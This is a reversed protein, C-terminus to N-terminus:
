NRNHIIFEKVKNLCHEKNAIWIEEDIVMLDIGKEKCQQKKISDRKKVNKLSHWYVGNFEIAKNLEPIWLDLELGCGTEPNVIQTRDNSIVDGDYLEKTYEFIEIEVKSSTSEAWCIPCRIGQQFDGFRVKYEHGKNCRIRLKTNTNKYTNSLLYYGEKEILEKVFEYTLKKNPSCEPCRCGTQFSSWVVKYEHGKSCRLKLKTNANTYEKSLLEYGEKEIQEKVFEYTLKKTGFCILCRYGQQFDGWTVKYEHGEPCKVKLKSQSNKYIKSLLKYGFSEIYGKVFDYTLKKKGSCELCRIGYKFGGFNVKYEHGEPCRVKLKSNAGIYGSSLLEYGFSDIYEKVFGYTYKKLGACEACRHGNKFDNFTVYYEHKKSCKVKLKNKNNKYTKSLLKYGEKEILEKVFEYTLKKKGACESCRHGQQFNDYTPYYEHGEPCRVKLKTRNNKYEESLLACGFSEIHEKIYEYTVKKYM